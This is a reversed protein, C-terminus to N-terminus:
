WWWARFANRIPQGPVYPAYGVPAYVPQVVPSYTVVPSYAVTPSYTVTPSYAVTPAPAYYTTVPRLTTIPAAAVVPAAAIVPAAVTQGCCGPTPNYATVTTPSYATVTTPSYVTQPAYYTQVPAPSTVVPSYTEYYIQAQAPQVILLALGVISAALLSKM